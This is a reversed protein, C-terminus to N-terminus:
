KVAEPLFNYLWALLFGAILGGDLGCIFRM